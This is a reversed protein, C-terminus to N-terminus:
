GANRRSITLGTAAALALPRECKALQAIMPLKEGMLWFRNTRGSWRKRATTVTMATENAFEAPALAMRANTKRNRPRKPIIVMVIKLSYESYMKQADAM